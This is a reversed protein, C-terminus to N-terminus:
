IDLIINVLTIIDLVDVTGDLNVDAIMDMESMGLVMNIVVIVDLISVEGDQNVDGQM